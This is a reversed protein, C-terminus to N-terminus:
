EAPFSQELMAIKQQLELSFHLPSQKSSRFRNLAEVAQAPESLNASFYALDILLGCVTLAPLQKSKIYADAVVKRMQDLTATDPALQGLRLMEDYQKVIHVEAEVVKFLQGHDRYIQVVERMWRLIQQGDYQVNGRRTFDVRHLIAWCRENVCDSPLSREYQNLDAMAQNQAYEALRPTWREYLVVQKPTLVAPCTLDQLVIFRAPLPLTFYSDFHQAVDELVESADYKGNNLMKLTSVEIMYQEPPVTRRHLGRYGTMIEAYEADRDCNQRALAVRFNELELLSKLSSDAVAGTYERMLRDQEEGHLQLLHIQHLLNQYAPYLLRVDGYKKAQELALHYYRFMETINNRFFSLRGLQTYLPALIHPDKKRVGVANEGEQAYRWAADLDGQLESLYSKLFGYAPLDTSQIAEALTEAKSLNGLQQLMFVLDVTLNTIEEPYLLKQDIASMVAYAGRPDGQEFLYKGKLMQYSIKENADLFYWQMKTLPDRHEHAQDQKLWTQYKKLYRGSFLIPARVSSLVAAIYLGYLLILLTRLLVPLQLFLGTQFLVLFACFYLLIGCLSILNRRHFLHWIFTRGYEKVLLYVCVFLVAAIVVGWSAVGCDRLVTWIMSLFDIM